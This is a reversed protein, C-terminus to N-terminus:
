HHLTVFCRELEGHFIHFSCVHKMMYYLAPVSLHEQSGLICITVLDRPINLHGKETSFNRLRCLGGKGREKTITTFYTLAHESTSDHGVRQSEISPLRDPEETWPIRWALISSYTAMGKELPYEQGLSRVWMQMEQWQSASEKDSLWRPLGYYFIYLM